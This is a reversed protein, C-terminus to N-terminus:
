AAVAGATRAAAVERLAASVEQERRPALRGTGCGATLLSQGAPVHVRGLAATLRLYGHRAGAPRHAALVGWAVSGGRAVHRGITRAAVTDIENVALDFSVLDPRAADVLDWPVACCLHLGWGAGVARLPEWAADVGPTGAAQLSPEDIVLLTDVGIRRLADVQGRVNAALWGAIETALPLVGAAGARGGSGRELATALTVPGTVQLKAVGRAPPRETLARLFPEWAAPRERDRGPSWGCRAPDSGLWETVMDGDLRPLQPCFPLDYADLVYDVARAADTCPLSGIGTTTWPALRELVRM